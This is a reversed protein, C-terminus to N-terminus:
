NVDTEQERRVKQAACELSLHKERRASLVSLSITNQKITFFVSQAPLRVNM